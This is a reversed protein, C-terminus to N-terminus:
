QQLGERSPTVMESVPHMPALKQRVKGWDQYEAYLSLITQRENDRAFPDEGEDVDIGWANIREQLDQPIVLPPAPPKSQQAFIQEKLAIERESVRIRRGELRESEFAAASISSRDKDWKRTLAGEARYGILLVTGCILAVVLLPIM